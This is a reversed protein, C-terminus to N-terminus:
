TAPAGSANQTRLANDYVSHGESTLNNLYSYYRAGISWSPTFHFDINGGINQSSLYTSGGGVFGYDFGLELSSNFDVAGSQVIQVKNKPDLAKAREVVAQDEGLDNMDKRLDIKQKKAAAKSEAAFGQFGAFISIALSLLVLRKM